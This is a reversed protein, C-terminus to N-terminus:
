TRVRLNLGVAGVTFIMNPIWGAIGPPIAGTAGVAQALRFMMLYVITIGLSVGIGYAPGSRASAGSLLPAGFLIVILTAVPIAIKEARSFMLTYPKGGSRELAQIFRNMEAYRMEEPDKPEALLEEPTERFKPPILRDFKFLKEPQDAVFVRFQGDHMTWLGTTSDWVMERGYSHLTPRTVGDGEIEMTVTTIRGAAVDIRRIGFVAGAESRYVFDTRAYRFGSKEGHLEAARRNGLPVVETLGLGTVTLLLGMAPLILTARHFSIGGAKAAAMESHRTMASVTFVTAILSAIPFSWLIFQPLMFMYGLAVTGLPIAKESYTDLNDTWHGLVFLIPAALSFLLFLKGFERAVYRDLTRV